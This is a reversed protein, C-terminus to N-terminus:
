CVDTRIGEELILIDRRFVSSLDEIRRYSIFFETLCYFLYSFIVM